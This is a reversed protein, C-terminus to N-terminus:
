LAHECNRKQRGDGNHSLLNKEKQDKKVVLKEKDVAETAKKSNFLRKGM